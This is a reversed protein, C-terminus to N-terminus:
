VGFGAFVVGNFGLLKEAKQQIGISTRWGGRGAVRIGWFVFRQFM